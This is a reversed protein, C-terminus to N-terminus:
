PRALKRARLRAELAEIAAARAKREAVREARATARKAGDESWRRAVSLRRDEGSRGALGVARIGTHRM